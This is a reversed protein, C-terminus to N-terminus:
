ALARLGPAMAVPRCFCVPPSFAGFSTCFVTGCPAAVDQQQGRGRKQVLNAAAVELVAVLGHGGGAM